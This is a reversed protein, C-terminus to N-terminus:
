NLPCGLNNDKDISSALSLLTEQHNSALAANVDGIIQAVTRPYDVGPHSADLLGAVAARLLIGAKGELSSGGHFSLAQHLTANALAPFASASAFVSQVKQGTAYGAAPWSDEHNKWYGPTCGQTGTAPPPPTVKGYYHSPDADTVTVNKPSKGTVTGLNRYQGATATGNGTCRMSAGAALTTQPCSVVVGQDDSVQVNSLTVDGTNTVFYEWLVSAGVTVEPGPAADADQGNTHKEIDIKPNEVPPPPPPPPPTGNVHYHAPDTDDVAPGCPPHGAATATKSGPASGATGTATCTMSEGPRLMQRPCSVPAGQDDTVQIDALRVAGQNTVVFTWTLAQGAAVTPGPAADADQGNILTEIDIAANHIGFYHSLDEAGVETGDPAESTVKGTNSYQCAVATGRGTCTMSDGPALEDAPCTVAVGQDDTVEIDTLHVKGTNEIEYEWLVPAGVPISPGPPLNADEGNTLKRIRIGPGPVTVTELPACYAQLAVSHRNDSGYSIGVFSGVELRLDVWGAAPSLGLEQISVRQVPLVQIQRSDVAQGYDNFVIAGAEVQRADESTLATSSPAGTRGTWIVVKTDAALDPNDTLFRLLHRQCLGPCGTTTDINVLTDGQATDGQPDVVFYEGWLADPRNGQTRLTVYGTAFGRTFESAYFLKDKPSREGCLASKLHAVEDASMTRGPLKGHVLWDALDVSQVAHPQLTLSVTLLSIGWNSFLDVRVDVPQKLANVVSLKTTTGGGKLDVEFYPLLVDSSPQLQADARGAGLLLASALLLLTLPNTLRRRYM